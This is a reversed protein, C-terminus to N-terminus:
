SFKFAMVIYNRTKCCGRFQLELSLLCIIKFDSSSKLTKLKSTMRGACFNGWSCLFWCAQKVQRVLKYHPEFLIIFTFVTHPMYATYLCRKIYFVLCRIKYLIDFHINNYYAWSNYTPVTLLKNKENSNLHICYKYMM